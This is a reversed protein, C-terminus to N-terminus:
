YSFCASCSFGELPTVPLRFEGAIRSVYVNLQILVDEPIEVSTPDVNKAIAKPDYHPLSIVDKVEELAHGSIALREYSTDPEPDPTAVAMGMNMGLLALQKKKIKRSVRRLVIQKLLKGLIDSNWEILRRSKAHQARGQFMSSQGEPNMMRNSGQKALGFSSRSPSNFVNSVNDSNNSPDHDLGYASSGNESESRIELWYTQLDGKGLTFPTLGQM